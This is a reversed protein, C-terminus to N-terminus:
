QSSGASDSVVIKIPSMAFGAHVTRPGLTRYCNGTCFFLVTKESHKAM